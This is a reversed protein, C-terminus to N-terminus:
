MLASTLRCVSDVYRRGLSRQEWEARTLETSKAAYTDIVETLAPVIDGDMAFLSIEYNLGFSRMDMNSSGMVGYTDDITFCKTHLVAPKPYRLIHVGADLLMEYYSSQAHDVLFQDAQEGVYLEVRVDRHAATIVAALMSEDPVFYPSVIRVRHQAANVMATFFRLNPETKFGPGSPVLQLANEAGGLEPDEDEPMRYEQIGIEENAESYWDTAFVAELETVIQGTLEVTIDNWHRGIRINKKALYTSDIMNQSGMVARRGDVVVLKRHNRLDVRRMRGKLPQFPLMLHWDIGAETLKRGLRKFGPYKRSGLHDFMLRVTVGRAAADVLARFFVDTTGDWACIYIEAHVYEEADNVIDAMRQISDEYNMTVGHNLGDVMPLFTLNRNLRILSGIHEPPDLTKPWDPVDDTGNKLMENAEAQIRCRRNNVYPSGFILFAPIGVVPLFLILMLWGTSSGPRRNEPVIGIAAIKIAYDVVIIVIAVWTPLTDILLQM